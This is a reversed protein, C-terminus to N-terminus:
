KFTTVVPRIWDVPCEEGFEDAYQFADILRLIEDINRAVSPDNM